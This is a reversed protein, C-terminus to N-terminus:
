VLYNGIIFQKFLNELRFIYWYIFCELQSLSLKDLFQIKHDMIRFVSLHSIFELRGGGPQYIHNLNWDHTNNYISNENKDHCQNELHHPCHLVWKEMKSPSCVSYSWTKPDTYNIKWSKLSNYKIIISKSSPENLNIGLKRSILM